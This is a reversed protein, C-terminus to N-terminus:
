SLGEAVIELGCHEHLLRTCAPPRACDSATSPQLRLFLFRALRNPSPRTWALLLRLLRISPSRSFSTGHFRPGPCNETRKRAAATRPLPLLFTGGDLVSSQWRAMAPDAFHCGHQQRPLPYGPSLPLSTFDAFTLRRRRNFFGNEQLTGQSADIGASWTLARWRADWLGASSADDALLADELLVLLALSAKGTLRAQTRCSALEPHQSAAASHPSALSRALSSAHGGKRLVILKRATSCCIGPM